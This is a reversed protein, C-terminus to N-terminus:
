YTAGDPVWVVELRRNEKGAGSQGAKERVDVRTTDVSKKEGLYKKASDGRQEALKDAHREKPDASGVLVVKAKADTELRVAVDDLVRKCVNDAQSSNLVFSCEGIKSAEPAPPPAQVMVGATCDCAAHVANEARGTVTYTGPALGSTDLQVSAGAGVIQGGNTQWTFTLTTGSPDSVTATITPREGALVTSRDAACSM